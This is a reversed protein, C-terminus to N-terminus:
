DETISSGTTLRPTVNEGFNINPTITGSYINESSGGDSTVWVSAHTFTGTTTDTEQPFDINGLPSVGAAGAGAASTVTWGVGADSSRDVAIRTYQGYGGEAATSGADGPDASHLGMWLDTTGANTALGMTSNNGNFVMQLIDYEWTDSKSM